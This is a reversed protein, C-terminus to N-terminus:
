FFAFLCLSAFSRAVFVCVCVYLKNWIDIDFCVMGNTINTVIRSVMSGLVPM